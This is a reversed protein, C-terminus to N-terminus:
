ILGPSHIDSSINTEATLGIAVNLNKNFHGLDQKLSTHSHKIKIVKNTDM